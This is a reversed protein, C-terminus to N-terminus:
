FSTFREDTGMRSGNPDMSSVAGGDNLDVQDTTVNNVRRHESRQSKAHMRDRSADIKVNTM